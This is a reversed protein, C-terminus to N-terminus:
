EVFDGRAVRSCKPAAEVIMAGLEQNGAEHKM